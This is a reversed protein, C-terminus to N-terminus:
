WVVVEVTLNVMSTHADCRLPANEVVRCGCRFKAMVIPEVEGSDNPSYNVWLSEVVLPTGYRTETRLGSSRTVSQSKQRGWGEVAATV